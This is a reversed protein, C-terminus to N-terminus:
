AGRASADIIHSPQTAKALAAPVTEATGWALTAFEECHACKPTWERAPAGCSACMWAPDAPATAARLLWAREAATDGKEEAELRAMLRCVHASPLDAVLPSLQARAIGWLKADLAAEGLAIRSDRSQPNAAVLREIARERALADLGALNAALTALDPHPHRAWAAQVVRRAGRKRGDAALMEAHLLAAPLFEPALRQARRVLARARASQGDARSEMALATILAPAMARTDAAPSLGKKAAREAVALAERWRGERIRHALLAEVVWPTNPRLAHAREILDRVADHDGEREAQMLLGRIGLFSTEPRELMATFYRKAAAADGALQAAQASLLMTLPPDHLLADARRAQRHAEEADGAAVAVMGQTLARYGRERRRARRAQRLRKPTRRTAGLLRLLLALVVSLITVAFGLV